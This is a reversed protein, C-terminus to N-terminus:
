AQNESSLRSTIKQADMPRSYLFGQAEDCGSQRLFDAQAENEVGEAVVRMGMHHALSIIATSIMADNSDQVIDRIFSRDIKLSSIPFRKLYSLSSYGTGFDDITLSVGLRNLSEMLQIATVVDDMIMSETIELELDSPDLGSEKLATDVLDVLSADHFQRSSLNVAMTLDGSGVQQWQKIQRCAELLVWRGIPIILGSREAFNIFRDPGILGEVPHQWRVLAEFGIIRGDQLDIQPQYHLRLEQHDIAVRLSSELQLQQNVQQNMEATYFQVQDGTENEKANHLAIEACNVLDLAHSSDMPAIAVGISITFIYETDEFIFPKLFLSHLKRLIMMIGETDGIRDLLIAFEDSGIRAVSDSGRLAGQLREAIQILLRDGNPFGLSENFTKFRDVDLMLISLMGGERKIVKLAQELRDNLLVRNALGTLQDHNVLNQIRADKELIELQMQQRDTIDRHSEIVGTIEGNIDLMPSALVEFVRSQGNKDVHQHTVLQPILTTKVLELPCPHLPSNCPAENKHTLRYCLQEGSIIGHREQAAHNELLVRYDLDIVMIPDSVGDIVRQLFAREDDIRHERERLENLQVEIRKAMDNFTDTLQGIEDHSSKKVRISLNGQALKHSAENLKKLPRSFIYGSVTFLVLSIILIILAMMMSRNLWQRMQLQFSGLGIGVIVEGYHIGELQIPVAFDYVGDSLWLSPSQDIKPRSNSINIGSNAIVKGKYDMLLLYNLQEENQIQELQMQAQALDRTMLSPALSIDLLSGLLQTERKLGDNLFQEYYAIGVYLLTGILISEVLLLLGSIKLTFPLPFRRM